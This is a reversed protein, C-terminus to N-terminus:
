RSSHKRSFSSCSSARPSCQRSSAMRRRLMVDFGLFTRGRIDRLSTLAVSTCGAVLLSGRCCRVGRLGTRYNKDKGFVEGGSCDADVLACPMSGFASVYKPVIDLKSLIRGANLEPERKDERKLTIGFGDRSM